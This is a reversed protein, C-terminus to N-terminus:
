METTKEISEICPYLHFYRRGEYSSWEELNSKCKKEIKNNLKFYYDNM